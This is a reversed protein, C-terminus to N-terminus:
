LDLWRQVSMHLLGELTSLVFSAVVEVELRLVASMIAHEAAKSGLKGSPVDARRFNELHVCRVLRRLDDFHAPLLLNSFRAGRGPVAEAGAGVAARAPM